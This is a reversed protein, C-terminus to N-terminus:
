ECSKQLEVVVSEVAKVEEFGQDCLGSSGFRDIMMGLASTPLVFHSELLM